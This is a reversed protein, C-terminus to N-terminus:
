EKIPVSIIVKNGDKVKTINAIDANEPLIFDQSFAVDHEFDKDKVQSNGFVTLKRANVTYKIKNEDNQFPKLGVIVNFKNDEYETKIKVSDLMFIPAAYDQHHRHKFNKDFNFSDEFAKMDQKYMRNMDKMMKKEIHHPNFHSAFIREAFQDAVFYFALLSGLFTALGVLLCKKWCHHQEKLHYHQQNPEQYNNNNEEM